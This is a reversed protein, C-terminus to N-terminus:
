RVARAAGSRARPLTLAITGDLGHLRVAMTRRARPGHLEYWGRDLRTVRGRGGSVEGQHALYHTRHDAIRRARTARDGPPGDLRWTWCTGAARNELLLDMHDGGPADHHALLAFRPRALECAFARLQAVLDSLTAHANRGSPSSVIWTRTQGIREPQAGPDRRGRVGTAGRFATVGVFVAWEPALARLKRALVVRGRAHDRPTLESAGRTARAVVNTLGFGLAVLEHDREYGMDEPVLGAGRLAPWFRNGPGAYHHATSASRLSPNIGVFVARLGPGLRDPLPM